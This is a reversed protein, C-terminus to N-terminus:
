IFNLLTIDTLLDFENALLVGSLLLSQYGALPVSKTKFDKREILWHLALSWLFSVVLFLLCKAPDFSVCIVVFFLLDGIGLLRNLPKERHGSGIRIVILTCTLMIGIVLLNTFFDVLYVHAMYGGMLKYIVVGTFALPFLWWHVARHKLDQWFIVALILVLVILVFASGM